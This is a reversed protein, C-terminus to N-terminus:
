RGYGEPHGQHWTWADAIIESLGRQPVWGLVERAKAAAFAIAIPETCGLATLLEEKLIAEYMRCDTQSVEM